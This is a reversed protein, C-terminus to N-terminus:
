IRITTRQGTGIYSCYYRVMTWVSPPMLKKAKGKDIKLNIVDIKIESFGMMGRNTELTRDEALLHIAFEATADRLFFPISTNPLNNNDSDYIFNRPWRLAQDDLNGTKSGLWDCIEDLLRTAWILAAQKDSGEADTWTAKHLRDLFYAEAQSITCYSNADSAGSTAVINAM